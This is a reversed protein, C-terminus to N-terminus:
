HEQQAKEVKHEAHVHVPVSVSCAAGASSGEGEQLPLSVSTGELTRWLCLARQLPKLVRFWWPLVPVHLFGCM